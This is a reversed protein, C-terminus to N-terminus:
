STLSGVPQSVPLREVAQLRHPALLRREVSPTIGEDPQFRGTFKEFLVLGLNGDEPEISVFRFRRGRLIAMVVHGAEHM